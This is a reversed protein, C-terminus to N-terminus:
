VVSKRDPAPVVVKAAVEGGAGPRVEVVMPQKYREALRDSYLRVSSAPFGDAWPMIIKVPKDPYSQALALGGTASLVIAAVGARALASARNLIQM